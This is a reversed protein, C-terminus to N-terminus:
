KECSPDVQHLRLGHEGDDVGARGIFERGREIPHRAPRPPPQVGHALLQEIDQGVDLGHDVECVLVRGIVHRGGIRGKPLHDVHPEGSGRLREVVDGRM